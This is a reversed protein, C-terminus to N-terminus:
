PHHRSIRAHHTFCARQWTDRIRLGRLKRIKARLYQVRLRDRRGYLPAYRYVYAVAEPRLHRTRQDPRVARVPRARHRRDRRDRLERQQRHLALPHYTQRAHRGPEKRRHRVLVYIYQHYALRGRLIIYAKHDLLREPAPGRVREILRELAFELM